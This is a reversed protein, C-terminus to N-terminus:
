IEPRFMDHFSNLFFNDTMGAIFYLSCQKIETDDSLHQTSFDDRIFDRLVARLSTSLPSKVHGNCLKEPYGDCKKLTDVIEEFAMHMARNLLQKRRTVLPSMYIEETNFKDLEIAADHVDSSFSLRGDNSYNAFLDKALADIIQRNSTGLRKKVGDPIDDKSVIGINAADEIDRGLYAIRDVYRVLCGEYTAPVDRGRDVASLAKKEGEAPQISQPFTEGCHCAIGDRVHYTLNLGRYNYEPVKELEDVLRLSHLEHTFGELGNEKAIEDLIREGIHGFPAHGLDHGAAIALALNENLRMARSLTRSISAVHLTHEIRTCIHDNEPSLFVQTKHRLRRFARSHIIRTYDREFETRFDDPPQEHLRTSNAGASRAAKPSLFREEDEELRVRPVEGSEM